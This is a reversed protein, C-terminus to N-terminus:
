PKDNLADIAERWISSDGLAVAKDIGVNELLLALMTLREEDNWFLQGNILEIKEPAMFYRPQCEKDSWIRGERRINWQTKKM